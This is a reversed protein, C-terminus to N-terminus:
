AQHPGRGQAQWVLKMMLEPDLKDKIKQVATAPKDGKPFPIMNTSM